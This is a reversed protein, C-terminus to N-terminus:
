EHLPLHKIFIALTITRAAAAAAVAQLPCEAFLMVGTTGAGTAVCVGPAVAFASNEMAIGAGAILVCACLACYMEAAVRETVIASCPPDFSPVNSTDGADGSHLLAASPLRVHVAPM